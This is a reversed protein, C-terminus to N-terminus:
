LNNNVIILDIEGKVTWVVRSRANMTCARQRNLQTNKNDEVEGQRMVKNAYM